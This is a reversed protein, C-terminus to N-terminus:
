TYIKIVLKYKKFIAGLNLMVASLVNKHKQSSLIARPAM